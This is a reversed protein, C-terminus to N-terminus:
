FDRITAQLNAPSAVIQSIESPGKAAGVDLWGGRFRVLYKGDGSVEASGYWEITWLPVSTGDNKYVGSKPYTKRIATVTKKHEENFAALEAEMSLPSIMVVVFKGNASVTKFSSPPGFSDACAEGALAFVAFMALLIAGVGALRASGSTLHGHALEEIADVLALGPLLIILGSALPIWEAFPPNL